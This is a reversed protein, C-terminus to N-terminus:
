APSGVDGTRCRLAYFSFFGDHFFFFSFFSFILGFVFLQLTTCVM